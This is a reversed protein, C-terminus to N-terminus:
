MELRLLVGILTAHYREPGNDLYVGNSATVPNAAVGAYHWDDVQGREHQVQLRVSVNRTIPVLASANLVSQRFKLDPWGTGALAQQTQTLTIGAGHAYDISTRGRSHVFDLDLVGWNLEIRGGAGAFENRDKSRVEWFRDRPYLPGGAASCLQEFNTPTVGAVGITCGVPQIGVQGM